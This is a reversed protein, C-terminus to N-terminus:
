DNFFSDQGLLIVIDARYRNLIEQQESSEQLVPDELMMQALSKGLQVCKERTNTYITTQDRVPHYSDTRIVRGGSQEILSSVKAAYGSIGTTNLVAIACDKKLVEVVQNFRFEKEVAPGVKKAYFYLRARAVLDSFSNAQSLRKKLWQDLRRDDEALVGAPLKIVQDIKRNLAWGFLAQSGVELDQSAERLSVRVIEGNQIFDVKAELDLPNIILEQSKPNFHVLFASKLEQGGQSFFVVNQPSELPLLKPLILFLALAILFLSVLGSVLKNSKSAYDKM